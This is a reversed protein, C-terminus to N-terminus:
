GARGRREEARARLFAIPNDADKDASTAAAARSAQTLLDELRKDVSSLSSDAVGQDLRRALALARLGVSTAAQGGLEDEVRREILGRPDAGPLSTVSDTSKAPTLGRRVKSAQARCVGSCYRARVTKPVFGEGCHACVIRALM